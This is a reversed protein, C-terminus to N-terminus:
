LFRDDCRMVQKRTTQRRRQQKQGTTNTKRRTLRSRVLSLSSAFPSCSGKVCVHSASCAPDCPTMESPLSIAHCAGAHICTFFFCSLLAIRM